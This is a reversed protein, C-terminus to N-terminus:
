CIVDAFSRTLGSAEEIRPLLTVLLEEMRTETYLAPTHPVLTDSQWQIRKVLDLAYEYLVRALSVPLFSSLFVYRQHSFQSAILTM